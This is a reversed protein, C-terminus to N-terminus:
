NKTCHLLGFKPVNTYLWNDADLPESAEAFILPHTALFEAYTSQAQGRANSATNGGRTSNTMLLRLLETQEDRSELISAIAQAL